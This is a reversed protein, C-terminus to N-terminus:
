VKLVIVMEGIYQRQVAYGLPSFLYNINLAICGRLFDRFKSDCPRAVGGQYTSVVGEVVKPPTRVYASAGRCPPSPRRPSRSLIARGPQHDVRGEGGVLRHPLPPFIDARGQQQGTALHHRHTAIVDGLVPRPPRGEERETQQNSPPSTTLPQLHHPRHLRCVSCFSLRPVPSSTPPM